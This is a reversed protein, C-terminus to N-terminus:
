RGEGRPVGGLNGSLWMSALSDNYEKFIARWEPDNVPPEYVTTAGDKSSRNIFRVEEPRAYELLEASHTAMVVQVQKPGLEGHAM